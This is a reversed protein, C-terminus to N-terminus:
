GNFLQFSKLSDEEGHGSYLFLLLSDEDVQRLVNHLTQRLYIGSSSLKIHQVEIFLFTEFFSICQQIEYDWDKALDDNILDHVAWSVFVAL